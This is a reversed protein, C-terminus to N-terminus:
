IADSTVPQLLGDTANRLSNKCSRLSMSFHNRTGGMFGFTRLQAVSWSSVRVSALSYREWDSYVFPWAYSFPLM